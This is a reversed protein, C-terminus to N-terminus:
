RKKKKKTAGFEEKLKKSPSFKVKKSAKIKLPEGTQPNRGMRAKYKAIRFNGFGPWPVKGDVKLGDVVGEFVMEICAKAESKTIDNNEAVLTIFESKTM